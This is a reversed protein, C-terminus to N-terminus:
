QLKSQALEVIINRLYTSANRDTSGLKAQQKPEETPQSFTFNQTEVVLM